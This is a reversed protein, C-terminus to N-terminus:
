REERFYPIGLAAPPQNERKKSISSVILVIVTVVYPLLKLLESQALTISIGFLGPVYSGALYLLGFLVSGIIGMLPKWIAFIVLAVSLWGLSEITKYSEPSGGYDKIYFLGGLSAIGSGICTAMYKYKSVNIGVADAAAPNEGIARLHLGVRTKTLVYAAAIAIFLGLYLMVGFYKLASLSNAFPFRFYGLAYLYGPAATVTSIKSMIFKM